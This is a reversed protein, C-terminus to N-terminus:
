DERMDAGCNPCYKTKGWFYSVSWGCVSCTFFSEGSERTNTIWKGKVPEITPSQEIIKRVNGNLVFCMDDQQLYPNKLLKDADILRSM